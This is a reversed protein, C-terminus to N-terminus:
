LKSHTQATRDAAVDAIPSNKQYTDCVYLENKQSLNPQRHANRICIGINATDKKKM